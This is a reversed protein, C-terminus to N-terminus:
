FMYGILVKDEPDWTPGALPRVQCTDTSGLSLPLIPLGDWKEKVSSFQDVLTCLYPATNYWSINGCAWTKLAWGRNEHPPVKPPSSWSPFLSWQAYRMFSYSTGPGHDKTGVLIKRSRMQWLTFFKKVVHERWWWTRGLGMPGVVPIRVRWFLSGFYIKTGKVQKHCTSKACHYFFFSQIAQFGLLFSHEQARQLCLWRGRSCLSRPGSHRKLPLIHFFTLITDVSKEKLM